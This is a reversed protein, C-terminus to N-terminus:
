VALKMLDGFTADVSHIGTQDLDELLESLIQATAINPGIAAIVLLGLLIKIADTNDRISIRASSVIKM